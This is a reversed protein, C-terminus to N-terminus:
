TAAEEIFQNEKRIKEEEEPTFDNKINFVARIEETTRGQIMMAITYTTADLLYKFDLFNALLTMEFLTAQDLRKMFDKEFDTLENEIRDGQRQDTPFKGSVVFRCYEDVLDLHRQDKINSDPLPLSPTEDEMPLDEMMNKLTGCLKVHSENMPKEFKVKGTDSDMVRIMITTENDSSATVTPRDENEM